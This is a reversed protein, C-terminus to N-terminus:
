EALSPTFCSGLGAITGVVHVYRVLSPGSTRVWTRGGLDSCQMLVRWTGSPGVPLAIRSLVREGPGSRPWGRTWSRSRRVSNLAEASRLDQTGRGTSDLRGRIRMTIGPPHTRTVGERTIVAAVIGRIIPTMVEDDRWRNSTTTM